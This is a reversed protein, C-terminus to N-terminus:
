LPMPLASREAMISYKLHQAGTSFTLNDHEPYLIFDDNPKSVPPYHLPFRVIEFGVPFDEMDGFGM